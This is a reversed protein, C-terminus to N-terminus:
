CVCADKTLQILSVFELFWEKEGFNCCCDTTLCICIHKVIAILFMLPFLLTRQQFFFTFYRLPILQNPELHSLVLCHECVQTLGPLFIRATGKCGRSTAAGSCAPVPTQAGSGCLDTLWLWSPRRDTCQSTRHSSTKSITICNRFLGALSFFTQTKLTEQGKQKVDQIPSLAFLHVM